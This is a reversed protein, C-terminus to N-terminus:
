RWLGVKKHCERVLRDLAYCFREERDDRIPLHPITREMWRCACHCMEHAIYDPTLAKQCFGVEGLCFGKGREDHFVVARAQRDTFGVVQRYWRRFDKWTEWVQVNFYLRGTSPRITFSHLPKM